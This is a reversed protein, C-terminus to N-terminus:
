EIFYLLNIYIFSYIFIFNQSFKIKSYLVKKNFIFYYFILFNLISKITHFQYNICNYQYEYPVLRPSFCLSYGIALLEHIFSNISLIKYYIYFSDNFDKKFFIWISLLCLISLFATKRLYSIGASFCSSTQSRILSIPLRLHLSHLSLFLFFFSRHQSIM